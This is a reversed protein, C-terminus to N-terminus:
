KTKEISSPELLLKLDDPNFDERFTIIIDEEAFGLQELLPILLRAASLRAQQVIGLQPISQIIADRGEAEYTTLERDSFHARLLSVYEKISKQDVKTSTLMVRPDPLVITIRRGVRWVNHASFTSFDIYGKLTADIPIVVKRSGLPVPLDFDRDFVSGRLRLEDDYTVIKHIQFETTYLRSCQRVQQVLLPITDVAGFASSEESQRCGHGLATLLVVFLPFLFYRRTM